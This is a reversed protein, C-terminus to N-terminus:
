RLIQLNWYRLPIKQLCLQISNSSGLFVMSSAKALRIGAGNGTIDIITAVFLRSKTAKPRSSHTQNILKSVVNVNGDIKGHADDRPLSDLRGGILFQQIGYSLCVARLRDTGTTKLVNQRRPCPVYIKEHIAIIVFRCSRLRHMGIWYCHYTVAVLIESVSIPSQDVEVLPSSISTNKLKSNCLVLSGKFIKLSSSQCQKTVVGDLVGLCRSASVQEKPLSGVGPPLHPWPILLIKNVAEQFPGQHPPLRGQHHFHRFWHNCYKLMVKLAMPM